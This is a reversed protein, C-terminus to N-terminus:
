EVPRKCENIAFTLWDRMAIADDLDFGHATQEDDVTVNLYLQGEGIGASLAIFSGDGHIDVSSRNMVEM